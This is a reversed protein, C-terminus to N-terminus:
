LVLNGGGGGPDIKNGSFLYSCPGDRPAPSRCRNSTFQELPKFHIARSTHLSNNSLTETSVSAVGRALAKTQPEVIATVPLSHANLARMAIRECLVISAEHCPLRRGANM